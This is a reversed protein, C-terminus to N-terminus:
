RHGRTGVVTLGFGSRAHSSGASVHAAASHLWGAFQRGRAGGTLQRTGLITGLLTSKGVGNPGLVAIFESKDVGLNLGSWLPEVAAEHFQVLM